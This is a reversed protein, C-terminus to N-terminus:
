LLKNKGRKRKWNIKKGIELAIKYREEAVDESSVIFPIPMLADVGYKGAYLATYILGEKKFSEITGKDIESHKAM